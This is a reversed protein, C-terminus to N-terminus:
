HPPAAAAQMTQLQLQVLSTQLLNNRPFLDKIQLFQDHTYKESKVKMLPDSFYKYIVFM